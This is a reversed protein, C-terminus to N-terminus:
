APSTKKRRHDAAVKAAAILLCVTGIAAFNLSVVTAIGLIRGPVPRMTRPDPEAAEVIEFRANLQPRMAGRMEIASKNALTAAAGPSDAFAIIEILSSSKVQRVSVNTHPKFSGMVSATLQVPTDQPSLFSVRARSSFTRPTVVLYISSAAMVLAAAITLAIGIVFLKRTRTTM